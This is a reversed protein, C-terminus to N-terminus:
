RDLIVHRPKGTKSTRILIAGVDGNFDSVRLRALEQYRCGTQLAAALLVRFDGDTANLLRRAEDNSLYRVKAANVGKFPKVRTWEANSPVKGHNFAMNLAARFQALIRNASVKRGRIREPDDGLERVKQPKRGSRLRAPSAALDRHWKVLDDYKLNAVEM